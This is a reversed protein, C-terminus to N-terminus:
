KLSSVPSKNLDKVIVFPETSNIMNEFRDVFKTLIPGNPIPSIYLKLSILLAIIDLFTTPSHLEAYTLSFLVQSCVNTKVNQLLHNQM